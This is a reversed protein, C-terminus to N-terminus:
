GLHHVLRDFVDFVHLLIKIEAVLSKLRSTLLPLIPSFVLALLNCVCVCVCGHNLRRKDSEVSRLQSKMFCSTVLSCSMSLLSSKLLFTPLRAACSFGYDKGSFRRM